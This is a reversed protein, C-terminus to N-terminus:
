QFKEAIHGAYTEVKIDVNEHAFSKGLEQGGYNHSGPANKGVGLRALAKLEDLHDQYVGRPTTSHKKCVSASMGVLEGMMGCTRMVRTTGLAVHTVSIDRGAMFLNEINRSYLCRYPIAYPEIPTFKAISRFEGGPFHETNKPDPYHLDITWTTTVFADPFERRSQIDQQQLIVDGLLRRSERKGVIYAAWALKQDAYQAKKSSNNKLFAWNGYIARLAYDRIHEAAAIQDRGFGTEWNWDGRTAHQCSDETFKLSWPCDPFSVPQETKACYWQVSTGLTLNDPKEPALSEGTESQSERGVRLDAGALFGLTGDGTCDAFLRTSFRLEKGTRIDKAVVAVIRSGDKEVQWVHTNLFLRINKEAQVVRLKKQDDYNEAPQANGRKGSDLEKVIDGLAPYPPLNIEGNLHVRVESSNNGGLVPRDQILAVQLGLRAASIAACTGAMGGGVVVLDFQGADQPKEPLGLMKRRFAALEEGKDPPRFDTDSTFIIADCRGEFGTLDHLALTVTEKTVEVTGGDQWHWKTGETGFVAELPKGDIVLQFKGPPDAADVRHCTMCKPETMRSKQSPEPNNWLAAWDRTRVWIRYKGTAPFTVTTGADKVPQGLGHALLYPSGMQEIAQQDIVWGGLEQFSEAEVLITQANAPSFASLWVISLIALCSVRM